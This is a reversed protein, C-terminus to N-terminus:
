QKTPQDTTAAAASPSGDKQHQAMCTQQMSAAIMTGVLGMGFANCQIPQGKGNTTKKTEASPTATSPTATSPTAAYSATTAADSPAAAAIQHYGQKQYGDVCNKQVSAAIL